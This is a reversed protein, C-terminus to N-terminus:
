CTLRLTSALKVLARRSGTVITGLVTAKDTFAMAAPPVIAKLAMVPEDAAAVTFPFPPGYLPLITEGVCLVALRDDTVEGFPM